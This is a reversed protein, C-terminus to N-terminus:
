SRGASRPMGTDILTLREGDIILYVNANVGDVLHIGEVIEM